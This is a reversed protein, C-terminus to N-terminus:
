EKKLHQHFFIISIMKIIELTLFTNLNIKTVDYDFDGNEEEANILWGKYALHECGGGSHFVSLDKNTEILDKIDKHLKETQM